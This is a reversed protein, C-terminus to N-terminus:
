ILFFVHFEIDAYICVLSEIFLRSFIQGIHLIM